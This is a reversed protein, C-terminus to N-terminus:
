IRNEHQQVYYIQVNLRPFKICHPFPTLKVKDDEMTKGYVMHKGNQTRNIWM